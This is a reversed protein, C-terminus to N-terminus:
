ISVLADLTDERLSMCYDMNAGLLIELGFSNTCVFDM